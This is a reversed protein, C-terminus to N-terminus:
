NINPNAAREWDPLPFCRTTGYVRGAIGPYATGPAPVFPLAYRRYDGIHQGELFLEARREYVIQARIAAPDSSSFAPLGARTHLQNIITVAAAPNGANADAEAVILQAEEWTALQIPSSAVSYKLPRFRPAGFTTTGGANVVQVRSDATGVYRVDSYLVDVAYVNATYINTYVANENVIPTTAPYRALKVYGDPVLVADARADALRALGLRARARGLRALNLTEANGPATATEIARTFRAEARQFVEQPQIEPGDDIAATCFGEALLLHSYGAYAAARAILSTRNAVEADSWGELLQLTRDNQWRSHAVADYYVRCPDLSGRGFDSQNSTSVNRSNIDVWTGGTNLEDGLNGGWVIHLALACNFLSIGGEVLAAAKVPMEADRAEVQGSLEVDLLQDLANCAALWGLGLFPLLRIPVWAFPNPARTAKPAMASSM